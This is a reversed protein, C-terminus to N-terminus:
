SKTSSNGCSKFEVNEACNKLLTIAGPSAFLSICAKKKDINVVTFLCSVCTKKYKRKFGIMNLLCRIM